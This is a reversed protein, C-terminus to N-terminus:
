FTLCLTGILVELVFLISVSSCLFLFIWGQFLFLIWWSPIKLGVRDLACIKKDKVNQLSINTKGNDLYDKRGWFVWIFWILKEFSIWCFWIVVVFIREKFACVTWEMKKEQGLFVVKWFLMRLCGGAWSFHNFRSSLPCCFWQAWLSLFDFRISPLTCLIPVFLANLFSMFVQPQILWGVMTTRLHSQLHFCLFPTHTPSRMKRWGMLTHYANLALNWEEFSKRKKRSWNKCKNLDLSFLNPYERDIEQHFEFSDASFKGSNVSFPPHM